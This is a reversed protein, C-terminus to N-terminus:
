ETKRCHEILMNVKSNRTGNENMQLWGHCVQENARLLEQYSPPAIDRPIKRLREDKRSFPPKTKASFFFQWLNIPCYYLLPCQSEEVQWERLKQNVDEFLAQAQRMRLQGGASKSGKKKSHTVQSKGHKRRVVYRQFVKHRVVEGGDFSGLAARGAQVLFIVYRPIDRQLKEAFTALVRSEGPLPLMLPLRMNFLETQEENFVRLLQKDAQLDMILSHENALQRFLCVTQSYTLRKSSQPAM